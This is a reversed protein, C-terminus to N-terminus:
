VAFTSGRRLGHRLAWRAAETRNTVGLKRFASTLHFKVTQVTVCLEAAIAKNSLGRAVAEVVDVERETLVVDHTEASDAFAASITDADEVARRIASGLDAPNISEVIYGCAGREFAARVSDQDPSVACMVVRVTPHQARLRALCELGDLDPIDLDLLVVDPSTEEVLSVVDAGSHTEGVIELSADAALAQRVGSLLLGDAHAILIEM